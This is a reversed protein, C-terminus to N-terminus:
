AVPYASASGRAKGVRCNVVGEQLNRLPTPKKRAHRSAANGLLANRSDHSRSARAGLVRSTPFAPTGGARVDAM